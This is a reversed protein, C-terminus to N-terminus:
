IGYGVETPLGFRSACTAFAFASVENRILDLYVFSEHASDEHRLKLAIRSLHSIDGADSVGFCKVGYAADNFDVSLRHIVNLLHDASDL